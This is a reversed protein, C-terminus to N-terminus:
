NLFGYLDLYNVITVLTMIFIAVPMMMIIIRYKSDKIGTQKDEKYKKSAFYVMVLAPPIM